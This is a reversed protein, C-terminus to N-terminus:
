IDVLGPKLKIINTTVKGKTFTYLITILTHTQKDTHGSVYRFLRLGFTTYVNDTAL